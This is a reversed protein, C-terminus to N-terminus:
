IAVAALAAGFPSPPLAEPGDIRASRFEAHLEKPYPFLRAASASWCPHLCEQHRALPQLRLDRGTLGLLSFALIFLARGFGFCTCALLSRAGTPMAPLLRAM